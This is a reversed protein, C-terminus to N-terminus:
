GEKLTSYPGRPDPKDGMYSELTRHLRLFIKDTTRVTIGPLSIGMIPQMIYNTSHHISLLLKARSFNKEMGAQWSTGEKTNSNVYDFRVPLYAFITRGKTIYRWRGEETFKILPFHLTYFKFASAGLATELKDSFPHLCGIASYESDCYMPRWCVIESSKIFEEALQMVDRDMTSKM